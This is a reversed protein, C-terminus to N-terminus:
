RFLYILDMEQYNILKMELFSYVFYYLYDSGKQSSQWFSAFYCYKVM